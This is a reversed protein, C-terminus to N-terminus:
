NHSANILPGVSTETFGLPFNHMTKHSGNVLLKSSRTPSTKLDTEENCMGCIIVRNGIENCFVGPLKYESLLYTM